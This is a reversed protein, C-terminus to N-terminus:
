FVFTVRGVTRGGFLLSYFFVSGRVCPSSRHVLGMRDIILILGNDEQLPQGNCGECLGSM